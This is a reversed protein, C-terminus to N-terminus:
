HENFHEMKRALSSLFSRDRSGRHPPSHSPLFDEQRSVIVGVVLDICLALVLAAAGLAFLLLYGGGSRVLLFSM